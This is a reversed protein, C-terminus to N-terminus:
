IRRRLREGPAITTSGAGMRFHPWKRERNLKTAEEPTPLVLRYHIRILPYCRVTAKANRREIAKRTPERTPSVHAFLFSSLVNTNYLISALSWGSQQPTAALGGFFGPIWFGIGDEDARAHKRFM